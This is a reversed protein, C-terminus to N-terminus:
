SVWDDANDATVPLGFPRGAQVLRSTIDDVAAIVEPCRTDGAFGMSHALDNPGVLFADIGPLAMLEDLANHGGTSEIQAILLLKDENGRTAVRAAEVLTSVEHAHEVQPLVLGDVGCAFYRILQALEKTPSRVLAGMGRAQACRALLHVSEISVPTRECDIFLADAHCAALMDVVPPAVGGPNVALVPEGQQIARKLHRVMVAEEVPHLADHHNTELRKYGTM